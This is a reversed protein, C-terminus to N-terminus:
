VSPLALFPQTGLFQHKRVTTNSFVRSLGKSHLSSLGILELPFWGQINVPLVSASTGISRGGSAVLWSVPFSGSAPLISLRLLFPVVSSSLNSPMVLEISMLKLLSWFITFSLSLQLVTTRPTLFLRVCSLLYVLVVLCLSPWSLVSSFAWSHLVLAIIAGAVPWCPHAKGVCWGLYSRFSTTRFSLVAREALAPLPIQFFTRTKLSTHELFKFGEM